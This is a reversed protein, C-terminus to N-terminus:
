PAADGGSEATKANLSRLLRMGRSRIEPTRSVTAMQAVVEHLRDGAGLNRLTNGLTEDDMSMFSGVVVNRLDPQSDIAGMAAHIAEQRVMPDEQRLGLDVLQQLTANPQGVVQQLRGSIPISRQLLELPNAPMPPLTTGTNKVVKTQAAPEVPGGLLTLAKLTGDERYTLVFNQEGLLRTLGEQLPVDAFDASVTHSDKLTGRIEAKSPETVARLVEDLSVDTVRVTLLDHQVTITRDPAGEVAGPKSPATEGTAKAVPAEAAPKPVSADAAPKPVAAEAPPKPVVAEAAPKPAAAEAPPKPIMGEAPPNPVAAEGAPKPAAAEAPPKPVAADAPPVPVAAEAAPKPAAADTPPVPVATEGAPTPVAAEAPPKPTTAEPPPAPVAPQAAPGPVSAEAAPTPPPAEAAPKPAPTDAAPQAAPAETTPPPPDARLAGGAVLLLVLAAVPVGAFEWAGPGSPRLATDAAKELSGRM